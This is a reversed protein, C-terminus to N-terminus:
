MTHVYCTVVDHTSIKIKNGDGASPQQLDEPEAFPPFSSLEYAVDSKSLKPQPVPAPPPPPAPDAQQAAAQLIAAGESLIQLGHTLLEAPPAQQAAQNKQSAAAQIADM